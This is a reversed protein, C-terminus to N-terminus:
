GGAPPAPAPAPPAPPQNAAVAAAVATRQAVLQDIAAQIAAPDGGAAKLQAAFGDILKVASAEVGTTNTVETILDQVSAMLIGRNRNYLVLCAGFGLLFGGLLAGLVDIM